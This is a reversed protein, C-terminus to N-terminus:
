AQKIEYCPMNSDLIVSYYYDIHQYYIMGRSLFCMGGEVHSCAAFCIMVSYDSMRQENKREKKKQM